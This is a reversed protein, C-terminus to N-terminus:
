PATPKVTPITAGGAKAIDAYSLGALRMEFERAREGPYVLHTHCDALGPPAPAGNADIGEEGEAHRRPTLEAAAGIWAIRGDEARLAGNDIMSYRAGRLTAIRANMLLLRKMAPIMSFKMAARKAQSASSGEPHARSTSTSHSPTPMTELTTAPAAGPKAARAAPGSRGPMALTWEWANWRAMAPSASNRPWGVSSKQVQRSSIYRRTCIRVGSSTSAIARWRYM